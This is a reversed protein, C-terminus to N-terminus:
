QAARLERYVIPRAPKLGLKVGPQDMLWGLYHKADRLQGSAKDANLKERLLVTEPAPGRRRRTRSKSTKRKLGKERGLSKGFVRKAERNIILGGSNDSGLHGAQRLIELYEKRSRQRGAGADAQMAAVVAQTAASPKRGARGRTAPTTPGAEANLGAPSLTRRFGNGWDLTVPGTVKLIQSAARAKAMLTGLWSGTIGEVCRNGGPGILVSRVDMHAITIDM